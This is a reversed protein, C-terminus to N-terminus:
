ATAHSQAAAETQRSRRRKGFWAAALTAAVVYISVAVASRIPGGTQVSSLGVAVAVLGWTLGLSVGVTWGPWRISVRSVIVGTVVFAALQSVFNGWYGFADVTVLGALITSLLIALLAGVVTRIGIAKSESM